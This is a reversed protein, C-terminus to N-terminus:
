NIINYQEYTLILYSLLYKGFGKVCQAWQYQAFTLRTLFIELVQGVGATGLSQNHSNYM